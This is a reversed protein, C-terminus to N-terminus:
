AREGPYERHRKLFSQNSERHDIEETPDDLPFPRVAM